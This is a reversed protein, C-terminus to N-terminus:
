RKFTFQMADVLSKPSQLLSCKISPIKLVVSPMEMAHGFVWLIDVSSQITLRLKLQMYAVSGGIWEAIFWEIRILGQFYLAKKIVRWILLISLPSENPMLLSNKAEILFRFRQVKLRLENEVWSVGSLRGSTM